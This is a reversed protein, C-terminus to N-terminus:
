FIIKEENKVFQGTIFITPEVNEVIKENKVNVELEEFSDNAFIKKVSVDGATKPLTIELNNLTENAEADLKLTKKWKVPEGLRASYQITSEDITFNPEQIIQTENIIQSINATITQNIESVNENIITINEELSKNTQTETIITEQIETQNTEPSIELIENQTPSLEEIIPQENESQLESESELIPSEAETSQETNEETNEESPM